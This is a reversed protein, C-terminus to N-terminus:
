GDVLLIIKHRSHSTKSLRDVFEVLDGPADPWRLTYLVPVPSKDFIGQNTTLSIYLHHLLTTKGRGPGAFIIADEENRLLTHIDVVEKKKAEVAQRTLGTPQYIKQIPIRTHMGVSQVYSAQETSVRALDKLKQNWELSSADRGFLGRLRQEVYPLLSGLDISVDGGM